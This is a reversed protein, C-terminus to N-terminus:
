SPTCPCRLRTRGSQRQRLPRRTVHAPFSPTTYVGSRRNETVFADHRQRLIYCYQCELADLPSFPDNSTVVRVGVTTVCTRM